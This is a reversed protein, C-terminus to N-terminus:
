QRRRRLLPRHRAAQGARGHQGVVRRQGRRRRLLGGRSAVREACPMRPRRQQTGRQAHRLDRLRARVCRPAAAPLPLPLDFRAVQAQVAGISRGRALRGFQEEPLGAFSPMNNRFRFVRGGGAPHAVTIALSVLRQQHGGGSPPGRGWSPRILRRSPRPGRWPRPRVAPTWGGTASEPVRVATQECSPLRKMRIAGHRACAGQRVRQQAKCGAPDEAAGCRRDGSGFAPLGTRVARCNRDSAWAPCSISAPAPFGVAIRVASIDTCSICPREGIGSRWRCGPGASEEVHSEVAAAVGCGAVGGGGGGGGLVGVM